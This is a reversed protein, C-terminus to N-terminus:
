SVCTSVFYLAKNPLAAWTFLPPILSGLLVRRGHPECDWTKHYCPQNRLQRQVIMRSIGMSPRVWPREQHHVCRDALIYELLFSEPLNTTSLLAQFRRRGKPEEPIRRTPPLKNTGQEKNPGRTFYDMCATMIM